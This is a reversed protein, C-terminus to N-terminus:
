NFNFLNLQFHKREYTGNKESSKFFNGQLYGHLSKSTLLQSVEEQLLCKSRTDSANFEIIDMGLEQCVLHVSTTKGIGPPGSILAAKYYSGDDNQAWPATCFM